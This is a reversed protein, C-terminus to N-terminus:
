GVPRSEKSVRGVYLATPIRSPVRYKPHFKEADVGRSFLEVERVLRKQLEVRTCESSALLWQCKGYFWKLFRWIVTQCRARLWRQPLGLKGLFCEVRPRAFEPLATHHCGVVPVPLKLRAAAALVNLGMSGPTAAQILDYDGRQCQRLIDLRVPLLDFEMGTYYRIPVHPEFRLIRVSGTEEVEFRGDGYTYIDLSFSSDRCYAALYHYTNSVRNIQDFSDTFVAIKM